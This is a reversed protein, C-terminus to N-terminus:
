ARVRAESEQLQGPSPILTEEVITVMGLAQFLRCMGYGWDFEGRQFSFKASAPYQHHNNQYGEGSVLWSVVTNNRSDDPTDFNRSGVAHGFANVMWGQVPHSMMGFWYAAGLLWADALTALAVAVVLHVAYPLWWLRWRNLWHVEFDLDEVHTTYEPNEKSLAVLTREYSRLQGWAVGMVGLTTPSHPDRETDTFAHHMRHMCSWGKPDLGTVWSGTHVVLSRVWPTLRVADHVLGRHYFVSIYTLNLLYAAVFVALAIMHM